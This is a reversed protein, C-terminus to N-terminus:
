LRRALGETSRQQPGPPIRFRFINEAGVELAIRAIRTRQEAQCGGQAAFSFSVVSREHIRLERGRPAVRISLKCDCCQLLNPADSGLILPTFKMSALIMTSRQTSPM